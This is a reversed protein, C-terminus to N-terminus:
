EVDKVPEPKKPLLDRQEELPPMSVKRWKDVSGLPLYWIKGFETLVYLGGPGVQITRIGDTAALGFLSELPEERIRITPGTASETTRQDLAMANQQQIREEEALLCEERADDPVPVVKIGDPFPESIEQGKGPEWEKDSM